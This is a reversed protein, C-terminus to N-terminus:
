EFERNLLDTRVRHQLEGPMPVADPVVEIRLVLPLWGVAAGATRLCGACDTVPNDALGALTRKWEGGHGVDALLAPAVLCDSEEDYDGEKCDVIVLDACETM